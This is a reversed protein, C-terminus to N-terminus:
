RLLPKEFFSNGDREGKKQYGHKQYYQVLGPFAPNTDLRAVVAGHSRADQEAAMLLQAAIGRKMFEPVLALKRIYGASANPDAWFQKDSPQHYWPTAFSITVTGVAGAGEITALLVHSAQFDSLIREKTHVGNWHQMGNDSLWATARDLIKHVTDLETSSCPAISVINSVIDRGKSPHQYM